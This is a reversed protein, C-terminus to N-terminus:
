GKAEKFVKVATKMTQISWTAQNKLEEKCKCSKTYFSWPEKMLTDKILAFAAQFDRLFTYSSM